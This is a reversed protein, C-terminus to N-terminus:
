SRGLELMGDNICKRCKYAIFGMDRTLRSDKINYTLKFQKYRNCWVEVGYIMPGDAGDRNCVKYDVKMDDCSLECIPSINGNEKM